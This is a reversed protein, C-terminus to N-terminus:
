LTIKISLWKPEKENDILINAVSSIETKEEETLNFKWNKVL